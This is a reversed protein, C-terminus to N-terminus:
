SKKRAIIEDMAKEFHPVLFRVGHENLHDTNYYTNDGNQLPSDFYLLPDFRICKFLYFLQGLPSPNVM